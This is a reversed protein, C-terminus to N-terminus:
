KTGTVAAVHRRLRRLFAHTERSLAAVDPTSGRSIEISRWLDAAQEREATSLPLRRAEELLLLLGHAREATIFATTMPGLLAPDERWTRGGFLAQTVWPGAGQCDYGVCGGYGREARLSHIACGGCGTLHACPEAAAKDAAFLNSAEFAFAVCCLAACRACDARLSTDTM